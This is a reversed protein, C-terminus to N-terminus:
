CAVRSADPNAWRDLSEVLQIRFAVVGTQRPRVSIVGRSKQSASRCRLLIIEHGKAEIMVERLLHVKEAPIDVRASQGEVRDVRLNIRESPFADDGALVVISSVPGYACEVVGEVARRGVHHAITPNAAPNFGWGNSGM